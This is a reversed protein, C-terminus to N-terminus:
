EEDEQLGFLQRVADAYYSGAGEEAEARLRELPRHLIKAAVAEAMRDLAALAEPSVDGRRAATRHVESRALAEVRERLQRITPVMPLALRWREFRDQESLVIRRAPEVAQERQSRGRDAVGELDDLDYLYVDEFRNSEPDVNRPIGLDIALLPRGQRRELVPALLAPGVIPASVQVSALLVDAHELEQGLSELPRADGGLRQALRQAAALTRNAVVVDRVGADRLGLLASEAMEGAGLLLVRKGDFTEFIERALQVGVRAVSVSASGLGTESRVRKATRFAHQFLRNLVPGVSRAAVAMRYADKIQGLIQVEGLVMSDLSAAVEFLHQVVSLGHIEYVHEAAASRDGIEDHLFRLLSELGEEPRRSVAVIETRNCTSIVAAEDIAQARVLKEDLGTVHHSPVAYRERVSVPATRHNMGVLLLNV